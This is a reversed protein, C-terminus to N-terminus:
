RVMDEMEVGDECYGNMTERSEEDDVGGRKMGDVNGAAIPCTQNCDKTERFVQKHLQSLVQGLQKTFKCRLSM